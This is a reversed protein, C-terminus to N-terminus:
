TKMPASDGYLNTSHEKMYRDGATDANECAKRIQNIEEKTLTVKAAGANEELNKIKTTGPIVIFEPGQALIWALAL